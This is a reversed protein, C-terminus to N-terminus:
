IPRQSNDGHYMLRRIEDGVKKTHQINAKRREHEAQKRKMNQILMYQLCMEM